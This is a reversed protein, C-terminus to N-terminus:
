RGANALAADLAREWTAGMGREEVTRSAKRARIGIICAKGRRVAAGRGAYLKRAIRRAQEDTLPEPTDSEPADDLEIAAHM